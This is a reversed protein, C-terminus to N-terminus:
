TDLMPCYVGISLNNSSVWRLIDFNLFVQVEKAQFLFSSKHIRISVLCKWWTYDGQRTNQTNKFSKVTQSLGIEKIM